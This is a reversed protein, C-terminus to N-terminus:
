ESDAAASLIAEALCNASVFRRYAHTTIQFGPPEPLGAVALRALSAGKGGVLELRADPSNLKLIFPSAPLSSM